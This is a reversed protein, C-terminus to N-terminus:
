PAHHSQMEALRRRDALHRAQAHRRGSETAKCQARQNDDRARKIGSRFIEGSGSTLVAVFLLLGCCALLPRRPRPDSSVASLFDM